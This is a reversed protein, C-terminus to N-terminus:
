SFRNRIERRWESKQSAGTKFSATFKAFVKALGPIGGGAKLGTEIEANLEQSQSRTISSSAFWARVPDLSADPLDFGDAQLRELLSEAMAMLAETYQLNNRDLKSLVDVEVVYFRGSTDFQRAHRRLETTKGSGIHGFFLVHKDNPAFFRDPK